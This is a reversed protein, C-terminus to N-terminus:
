VIELGPIERSVGYDGENTHFVISEESTDKLANDPIPLKDVQFYWSKRQNTRYDIELLLLDAPDRKPKDPNFSIGFKKYARDKLSNQLLLISPNLVKQIPKKSKVEQIFLADEIKIEKTELTITALTEKKKFVSVTKYSVEAILNNNITEISVIQGIVGTDKSYIYEGIFTLPDYLTDFILFNFIDLKPSTLSWFSERTMEPETFLTELGGRSEPTAVFVISKLNENTFPM